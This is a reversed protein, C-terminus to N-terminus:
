FSLVLKINEAQGEARMITARNEVYLLNGSRPHLDPTITDVVTRQIASTNGKLITGIQITGSQECVAAQNLLNDVVVAQYTANALDTGQYVVEDKTYDTGTTLIISTSQTIASNANASDVETSENYKHPATILAIQRFDNNASVKGDESSDPSGIKISIMVTNSSLERAPNFAHGSPPSLVPRVNAGTGIGTIVVSCNQYTYNKGHNTMIGSTLVNGTLNANATAATGNGVITITTNTNSYGTGGSVVVLRSVAGSVVNNSSGYYNITQSEPVPIWSTTIFKSTPTIAYMYKWVYGDATTIFGNNLIYDGTPEVTSLANNANDLCRYVAGATTYVYEGNAALYPAEARDDYSPYVTNATWNNRRIVLAVDNGVVRKGGFMNNWVSYSTILTNALSPPSDNADWLSTRGITLYGVTADTESFGDSFQKANHYGLQRNTLTTM